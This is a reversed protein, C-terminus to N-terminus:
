KDRNLSGKNIARKKSNLDRKGLNAHAKSSKGFLHAEDVKSDKKDKDSKSDKKDKDSKSDKKDKKVEVEVDVEVGDEDEDDDCDSEAFMQETIRGTKAGMVDAAAQRAVDLYSPDSKSRALAMVMERIKDKDDSM